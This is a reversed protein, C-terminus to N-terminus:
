NAASINRSTQCPPSESIPQAAPQSIAILGYVVLLLSGLIVLIRLLMQETHRM